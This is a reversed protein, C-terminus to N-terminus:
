DILNIVLSLGRLQIALRTALSSMM